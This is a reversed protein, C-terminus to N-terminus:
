SEEKDSNKRQKKKKPASDNENEDLANRKRKKGILSANDDIDMENNANKNKAAKLQENERRLARIKRKKENLILVFKQMMEMEINNKASIGEDVIQLSKGM